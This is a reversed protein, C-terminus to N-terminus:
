PVTAQRRLRAAFAGDTGALTPLVTLYGDRMTDAPVTGAPPPELEFAPHANLFSAVMGENEEWELSCTSYILLGGPRVCRSAAELIERQADCTVALDSPKLRWRADPHRRFTGTGSCPADVLVADVAAVPPEMADAVVCHINGVRLRLLNERVRALRAPARDAAIVCRATRALAIAKGGPAACLDLVTADAPVAAYPAVLAAAPDQVFFAGEAFGPLDPIASAGRVEWGDLGFPAERVQLGAEVLARQFEERSGEPGVPRIGLPAETNNAALLAETAADGWRAVWRAVLWRPHSYQAALQTVPDPDTPRDDLTARERDLRRLVANALGAAGVGVLDKVLEVTQGIAAYPPVSDMFRLQYAGLRLQDVLDPDLRDLGGKVRDALWSDLLGRSRMTGWCLEQVWRRDRADLNRVAGDFAQDLLQGQRVGRMITAAAVRSPTVSQRPRPRAHTIM